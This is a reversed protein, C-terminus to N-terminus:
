ENQYIICQDKPTHLSVPATEGLDQHLGTEKTPTRPASHTKQKNRKSNHLRMVCYILILSLLVATLILVIIVTTKQVGERGKGLHFAKTKRGQPHELHCFLAHLHNAPFTLRSAVTVTGNANQIHHIETTERLGRDDLWIINPAPKGTASCV